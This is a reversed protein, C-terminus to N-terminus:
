LWDPSHAYRTNGTLRHTMQTIAYDCMICIYIYIYTCLKIDYEHKQSSLRKNRFFKCSYLVRFLSHLIDLGLLRGKIWCRVIELVQLLPPVPHLLHHSKTVVVAMNEILCIYRSLQVLSFLTILLGVWKKILVIKILFM